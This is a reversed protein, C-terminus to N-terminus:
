EMNVGAVGDGGEEISEEVDPQHAQAVRYPLQYLRRHDFGFRQFGPAEFVGCELPLETYIISHQCHGNEFELFTLVVNFNRGIVSHFGATPWHIIRYPALPRVLHHPVTTVGTFLHVIPCLVRTISWSVIGLAHLRLFSQASAM